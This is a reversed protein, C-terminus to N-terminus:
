LLRALPSKPSVYLSTAEVFKTTGELDEIWARVFAKRGEVKDLQGKLVVWQHSTVPRRYDINLNATFGVKNPLSPMAVFALVEDLLTALMGGHVIGDHGCLQKGLHTVVTVETQDKNYFVAPSVVLKGKGRLSTVTLNNLKARGQIRAYPDFEYLDPNSRAKKVIDLNEREELACQTHEGQHRQSVQTNIM